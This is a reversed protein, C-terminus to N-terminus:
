FLSIILKGDISKFVDIFEMDLDKKIKDNNMEPHCGLNTRLFQGVGSPQFYSLLKTTCTGWWSNLNLTPINYNPYKPRLYDVIEDM